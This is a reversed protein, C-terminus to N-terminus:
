RSETFALLPSFLHRFVLLYSDCVKKLFHSFTRTVYSLAVISFFNATKNKHVQCNHIADQYQASQESFDIIANLCASSLGSKKAM